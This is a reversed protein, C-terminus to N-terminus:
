RPSATTIRNIFGHRAQAYEHVDVTVGAAAAAETLKGAAGRLGKDRGGFSGVIPCAGGLVEDLNKPLIGYNVSSASWGPQGALVLAFGGGMGYGIAGVTGTCSPDAAVAARVADVQDFVPGGTRHAPHVHEELLAGHGQGPLPRARRGPLGRRGALRGTRAHRRQARLRRAGARDRAVTGAPRLHGGPRRRLRQARRLQRHQTRDGDFRNVSSRGRCGLRQTASEAATAM